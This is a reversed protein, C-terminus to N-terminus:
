VGGSHSQSRGLRSARSANGCVAVTQVFSPIFSIQRNNAAMVSNLGLTGNGARSNYVLALDLEVDGVGPPMWLPIRYSAAGSHTVGFNGPTRGGALTAAAGSTAEVEYAPEAAESAVVDDALAIGTWFTLAATFLGTWAAAARAAGRTGASTRM